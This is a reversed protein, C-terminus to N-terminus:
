FENFPGGLDLVTKYSGEFDFNSGQAVRLHIILEIARLIKSHPSKSPRGRVVEGVIQLKVVGM